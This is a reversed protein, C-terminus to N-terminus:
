AYAPDSTRTLSGVGSSVNVIRATLAERLLPPMAQYVALAGFVDTEWVARAEASSV